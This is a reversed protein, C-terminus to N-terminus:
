TFCCYAPHQATILLLWDRIGRGIGHQVAYGSGFGVVAPGDM